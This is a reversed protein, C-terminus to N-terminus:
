STREGLRSVLERMLWQKQNESEECGLWGSGKLLTLARNLDEPKDSGALIWACQLLEEPTEVLGMFDLYRILGLVARASGGEIIIRKTSGHSRRLSREFLDRPSNVGTLDDKSVWRSEMADWVRFGGFFSEDCQRCRNFPGLVLDEAVPWSPTSPTSSLGSVFLDVSPFGDPILTARVMEHLVTRAVDALRDLAAYDETMLNAGVAPFRQEFLVHIQPPDFGDLTPFYLRLHGEQGAMRVRGEDYLGLFVAGLNRTANEHSCNFLYFHTDSETPGFGFEVGLELAEPLNPQRLGLPKEYM